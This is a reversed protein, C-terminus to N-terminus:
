AVVPQHHEAKVYAWELYSCMTSGDAVEGRWADETFLTKMADVYAEKSEEFPSSEGTEPTSWTWMGSFPFAEVSSVRVGRMACVARATDETSQVVLPFFDEKSEGLAAKKIRDYVEAISEVADGGDIPNDEDFGLESICRLLNFLAAERGSKISTMVKWAPDFEDFSMVPEYGESVAQQEAKDYHGGEAYEGKTCEVTFFVIDPAGSADRALVAVKTKLRLKSTPNKTKM